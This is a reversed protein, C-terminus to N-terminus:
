ENRGVSRGHEDQWWETSSHEAQLYESVDYELTELVDMVNTNTEEAYTIISESIKKIMDKKNIDKAVM